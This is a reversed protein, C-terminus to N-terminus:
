DKVLMTQIFWNDKQRQLKYTVEYQAGSRSYDAVREGQYIFDRDESIVAVVTARDKDEPTVSKIEIGKTTYVLYSQEAKNQESRQRWESLSPELLISDLAKVDYKEGMALSKANQWQTIIQAAQAKDLEEPVRLLAVQSFSAFLPRQILLVPEQSALTPLSLRDLIGRKKLFWLGAGASLGLLSLSSILLLKPFVSRRRVQTPPKEMPPQEKPQTPPTTDLPIKWIPPPITPRPLSSPVWESTNKTLLEELYTEVQEEAFYAKLSPLKSSLDAFHPYVEKELWCHECYWCLNGLLDSDPALHLITDYEKSLIIESLAEEIQGLLLSCLSSELYVNQNPRLKIFIGKARRIYDPRFEAFGIAVLCYAHLFSAVLSPRKAEEAFIQEQTSATLYQRIQQIFHLFQERNMGSYDNGNGEIGGRENLMEKLLTLGQSLRGPHEDTTSFLHLVRDPRLKFLYAQLEGRLHLFLGAQMLEEQALELADGAEAFNGEQWHALGIGQHSLARVLIRDSRTLDDEEAEPQSLELVAKYEGLSYLIVLAGIRDANEIKLTTEGEALTHDYETRLEPNSLVQFSRELLRRRAALAVESFERHPVWGLLSQYVQELYPTSAQPTVGLIRYHDLSIRM